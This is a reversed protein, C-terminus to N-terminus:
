AGKEKNKQRLLMQYNLRFGRKATHILKGGPSYIRLDRKDRKDARGGRKKKKRKDELQRM